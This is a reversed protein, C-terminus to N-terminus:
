LKEVAFQFIEYNNVKLFFIVRYQEVNSCRSCLTEEFTVCNAFESIYLTKNQWVKFTFYDHDSILGFSLDCRVLRELSFQFKLPSIETSMKLPNSFVAPFRVLILADHFYQIHGFFIICSFM